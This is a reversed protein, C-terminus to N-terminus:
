AARRARRWPSRGAGMETWCYVIWGRDEATISDSPADLMELWWPGERRIGLKILRRLDYLTRAHCRGQRHNNGLNAAVSGPTPYWTGDTVARLRAPLATDDFWM